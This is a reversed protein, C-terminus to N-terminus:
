TSASLAIYFGTYLFLCFVPWSFQQQTTSTCPAKSQLGKQGCGFASKPYFSLVEWSYSQALTLCKAKGVIKVFISFTQRSTKEPYNHDVRETSKRAKRAWLRRIAAKEREETEVTPGFTPPVLMNEIAQRREPTCLNLKNLVVGGHGDFTIIQDATSLIEPLFTSLLVTSHARRFVGNVGCLVELILTATTPDLASLGDDIVTIDCGAFVTRALSVRQRQGGSLNSGNLGVIYGDGGPLLRLDEELQCSQIAMRYRSPEFPLDGIVKQRVSDDRLWAQPGCYAIKQHNSYVYGGTMKTEGLISRFFASKGCGTPGVVGSISGKPLGFNVESLLPSELGEPGFSACSFQIINRIFPYEQKNMERYAPSNTTASPMASPKLKSRSDTLESVLLFAEIRGFWGVMELADAYIELVRPTSDAILGVATLAPFLRVPSLTGDSGNWFFAVTIVVFYQGLDAFVQLIGLLSKLARFHKSTELEQIRLNYLYTHVTPGLGLIKIGPLQKLVETTKAVRVAARRQWKALAPKTIIALLFSCVHTCLLPVLVVFCSIGIYRSLSYMHLWAESSAMFADLCKSLKESIRDIDSSISPHVTWSKADKEPLKHSKLMVQGLLAGRIQVTLRNQLCLRM